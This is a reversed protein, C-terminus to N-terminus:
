ETSPEPPTAQPEPQNPLPQPTIPRNQEQNSGQPKVGTGANKNQYKGLGVARGAKSWGAGWAKKVGDRAKIATQIPASQKIRNGVAQAAPKGALNWSGKAGSVAASAALGGLKAGAKMGSGSSFQSAIGEINGILKMAFIGCAVLMLINMGELSTINKLKEGDNANIAAILSDLTAGSPPNLAAQMVKSALLMLVGALAYVFFSNMLMRIGKSTYQQTMKIPWCAILLPVLAGLMGLQVTADILYFSFALWILVGFFLMILGCLLLKGSFMTISHCIMGMGVAPMTSATETFARITCMISNFLEPDFEQSSISGLEGNCTVGTGGGSKALELGMDLGGQIVPSIFMHYIYTSNSLLGITIGFKLCLVLVNKILASPKFIGVSSVAKLVEVALLVLFFLGVMKSLPAAAIEWAIHAVDANTNLIVEFIHCLPCRNLMNVYATIPKCMGTQGEVEETNPDVTHCNPDRGEENCTCQSLSNDSTNNLASECQKITDEFNNLLPGINNLKNKCEKNNDDIQAKSWQIGRYQYMDPNNIDAGAQSALNLIDKSPLIPQASLSSDCSNIFDGAASNYAAATDTTKACATKAQSQLTKRADDIQEPTCNSTQALANHAAFCLCMMFIFFLNRLKIKM